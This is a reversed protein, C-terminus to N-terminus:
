YFQTLIVCSCSVLAQDRIASGRLSSNCKVHDQNFHFYNVRVYKKVVIM